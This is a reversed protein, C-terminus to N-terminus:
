TVVLPARSFFTALPQREHVPSAEELPLKSIGLDRLSLSYLLLLQYEDSSGCGAISGCSKLMIASNFVLSCSLLHDAADPCVGSRGQLQSIYDVLSGSFELRSEKSM